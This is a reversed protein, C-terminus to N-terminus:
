LNLEKLSTTLPYNMCLSIVKKESIMKTKGESLVFFITLKSQDINKILEGLTVNESVSLTKVSSFDKIVKKFVSIHEYKGEFKTEIVGCILFVVMLALTPNYDYFCTLIFGALFLISFAINFAISLNLAKKRSIKESLLGTLMRGGDIPYAPLLNFLALFLSCVCLNFTFNYTVPCIWWLSSITASLIINAMPGALAIKVEDKPLFKGDKYNLAVGYPALYFNTLKYGLRKAVYYHGFEHVLVSLFLVLFEAIQGTAVFWIFLLFFTPHIPIKRLIRMDEDGCACGGGDCQCYDYLCYKQAYCM